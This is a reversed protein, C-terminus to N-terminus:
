HGTLIIKLDNGVTEHSVIKFRRQEALSALSSDFIAIGNNGLLCPAQYIVLEDVLNQTLFSTSVSAGAEVMVDHIQYDSKLKLLLTNLSIEEQVLLIPRIEVQNQYWDSRTDLRGRRDLVVLLPQPIDAVPVGLSHSRVTMSPNDRLVTESGTIIAGSIARLKQVDERAAEGTIWKSEGNAMAIRGDLSCAIKLRVYPLGGSMTAFFGKNLAYAQEHCVNTIIEIGAQQLKAIGSGAVKPNPDTVAIVVKKIGASILADACPPTRGYHSCPELTVYATAGKANEGSQRLAFVEAHPQGAQYHYGEGIVQGNKVFVCGVCPNPRTTYQGKKALEIARLMYYIDQYYSDQSTSNQISNPM